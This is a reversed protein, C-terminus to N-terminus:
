WAQNDGRYYAQIQQPDANNVPQYLAATAGADYKGLTKFPSVGAREAVPDGYVGARAEQAMIAGIQAAYEEPNIPTTNQKGNSM